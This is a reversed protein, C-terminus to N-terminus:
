FHSMTVPDTGSFLISRILYSIPPMAHNSEANHLLIDIQSKGLPLDDHPCTSKIPESSLPKPFVISSRQAMHSWPRDKVQCSPENRRKTLAKSQLISSWQFTSTNTRKKAEVPQLILSMCMTGTFPLRDRNALDVILSYFKLLHFEHAREARPTTILSQIQENIFNSIERTDRLM